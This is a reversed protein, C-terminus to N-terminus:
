RTHYLCVRSTRYGKTYCKWARFSLLASVPVLPQLTKGLKWFPGRQRRQLLHVFLRLGQYGKRFLSLASVWPRPLILSFMLGDALYSCVQEHSLIRKIRDLTTGKKVLLCHQIQLTIEDRVFVRSTSRFTDYTEVVMGYITNEQPVVGFTVDQSLSRFVDQFADATRM